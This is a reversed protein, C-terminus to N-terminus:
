SGNSIRTLCRISRLAWHSSVKVGRGECMAVTEALGDGDIDSLAIHAGRGALAVALSRGIGSGAGTIAAVKGGFQKM